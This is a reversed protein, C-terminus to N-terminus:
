TNAIIEGIQQSQESLALIQEAISEVKRRIDEMGETTERIAEVGAGAVQEAQQATETVLTAIQVAQEASAKVQDVTAATEAIAASQETAGASQESVAALIQSSAAALHQAASQPEAVMERLNGLMRQFAVGLVDQASQPEIRGRLDGGAIAEAAGAMRRLSGIMRQFAVGLVDESSQPAVDRSLDGRAIAEAVSAMETQYAIMARFATATQGLEDTSQLDIRQRLDGQALGRAASAMQIAADAIGRSLLLGIAAGVVLAVILLPITIAQSQSYTTRIEEDALRAGQANMEALRALDGDLKAYLPSVQEFYVRTAATADGTSTTGLVTRAADRYQQWDERITALITAEESSSLTQDFGALLLEISAVDREVAAQQTARSLDSRDVIGSLIRSDVDGVVARTQGLDRLPVVRDEYVEDSLSQVTSLNHLGLGGVLVTLALVIGFGALLKGRVGFRATVGREARPIPLLSGTSASTEIYSSM